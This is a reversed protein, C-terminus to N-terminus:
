YALEAFLISIIFLPYNKSMYTLTEQNLLGSLESYFGASLCYLLVWFLVFNKLTLVLLYLLAKTEWRYAVTQKNGVLKEKLELKNLFVGFHGLGM